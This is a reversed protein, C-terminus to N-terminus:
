VPLLDDAPNQDDDGGGIQRFKRLTRSSRGLAQRDLLLFPHLEDADITINIIPVMLTRRAAIRSACVCAPAIANFGDSRLVWSSVRMSRRKAASFASPRAASTVNRM